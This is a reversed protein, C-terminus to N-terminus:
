SSMSTWTFGIHKTSSTFGTFGVDASSCSTRTSSGPARSSHNANEFDALRPTTARLRSDTLEMLELDADDAHGRLRVRVRHAGVDHDGDRELRRLFPESCAYLHRRPRLLHEVGLRPAAFKPIRPSLVFNVFAALLVVM